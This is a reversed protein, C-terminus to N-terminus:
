SVRFGLDNSGKWRLTARTEPALTELLVGAMRLALQLSQIEDVGGAYRVKEDGAGVIQIPCFFGSSDPFPQPKGLQLIVEGNGDTSAIEFKRSGIVEGVDRLDM